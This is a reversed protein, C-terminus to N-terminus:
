ALCSCSSKSCKQHCSGNHDFSAGSGRYTSPIGTAVEKWNMHTNGIYSDMLFAMWHMHTYESVDKNHLEGVTCIGIWNFCYTVCITTCSELLTQWPSSGLFPLFLNWPMQFDATHGAHHERIFIGCHVLPVYRKYDHLKYHPSFIYLVCFCLLCGCIFPWLAILFM